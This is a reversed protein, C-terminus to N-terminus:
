GNKRKVLDFFEPYNKGANFNRQWFSRTQKRFEINRCKQDIFEELLMMTRKQDFNSKILVGTSENVIDSTGGVDTAMSPIGFSIAEQISVPLGENESTNILCDVYHDSFYDLIENNPTFGLHDISVNKNASLAVLAAQYRVNTPDIESVDGFHLWRIPKTAHLLMEAILYFRKVNRVRGISAVVFEDSVPVLPGEGRDETGLYAVHVKYAYEPYRDQIYKQTFRSVCYIGDLYQYKFAQFALKGTIPERHEIVDRGHARSYCKKIYGRKKAIALLLAYENAWMTYSTKLNNQIIKPKLEEVQISVKLLLSFAQRWRLVYSFSTHSSFLDKWLIILLEFGYQILHSIRLKPPFGSKFCLYDDNEAGDEKSFNSVFLVEVLQKRAWEKETQEFATYKSSTFILHKL